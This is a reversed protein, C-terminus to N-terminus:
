KFKYLSWYILKAPIYLLIAADKYRKIDTIVQTFTRGNFWMSNVWMATMAKFVKVISATNDNAIYYMKGYYTSMCSEPSKVKSIGMMSTPSPESCISFPTNVFVTLYENDIPIWLASGEPVWKTDKHEPFLFNRMITTKMCFNKDGKVGQKRLERGTTIMFNNPFSTGRILGDKRNLCLGVVGIIQDKINEPIM